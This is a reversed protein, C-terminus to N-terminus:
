VSGQLATEGVEVRGEDPALGLIHSDIDTM